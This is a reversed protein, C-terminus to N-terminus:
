RPNEKEPPGSAIHGLQRLKQYYSELELQGSNFTAVVRGRELAVAYPPDTFAFTKRLAAADPSIGAHLGTDQLFAQAFRQEATALAVVHTAGWNQSSMKQAVAYCHMCEPDFFYLLVRGQRLALPRGDVLATEPVGAGGRQVSSLGYSCAAALGVLLLILTAQRLGQARRSWWGAVLALVLMVADGVFFAPGVVREVWPFCSCDEGLLRDYFVAFYIMFAFLMAAALWAGWRRYRPVLLLVGTLTEAVAAAIAIPLSLSVPMLLQVVREATGSLDTMKWIVSALFALSLFAAAVASSTAKFRSRINVSEATAGVDQVTSM